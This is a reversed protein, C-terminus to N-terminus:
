NILPLFLARTGYKIKKKGELSINGSNQINKAELLVTKALEKQGQQILHTALHNLLQNAKDIDGSEVAERAKDQMRYLNLKSVAKMIEEPPSEYNSESSVSCRFDLPIRQTPIQRQPLDFLLDGTILKVENLDDPIPDVIFELLIRQRSNLPLGGFHLPSSVPIVGVEPMLRFAYNLTIGPQDEYYLRINEAYTQGLGMFKNELWTHIDEPNTVYMSGGGTRAALEDLFVDNWDSGIGLASISVGLAIAQDALRLCYEEDGYTQGDTILILHNVYGSSLYRRVESFGAELGRFIETGGDAYLKALHSKLKTLETQPGSPLIVEARDNFTVISLIDKPNLGHILEIATLKLVDLRNGQMSTSRDLILSVNLLPKNKDKSEIEPPLEIDLIMYIIQSEDLKTLTSRSYTSNLIIAPSENLEEPLNLNADYVARKKPNSLVEYAEKIDLFLETAGTNVDPHYRHAAKRYARRIEDSTADRPVGLRAYYNFKVDM